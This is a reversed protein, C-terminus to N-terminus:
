DAPSTALNAEPTQWRNLRHELMYDAAQYYALTDQAVPSDSLQIDEIAEAATNSNDHEVLSPSTIRQIKKQPSFIVLQDDEYLALKQYNGILARPQFDASLINQGFFSGTYDMGLLALLTPGVDIQSAIKKISTPSIYKPAYILFPIHYRSLTLGTRGASNATHDAVMVFVTDDFWPKQKASKIFKRLAYDTYQVGGGRGVGSAVEVRGDPYTFPQHNSVTMVHFFFPTHDAHDSDAQEIVKNFLSEDNMGWANSFEIESSDFDTMDVTRYGNGSFFKNMNDFYGRGGYMYAVDYERDKFVKGLSFMRDNDPRKVVSRGPTPPISLTLAELGRVTRTGTAYLRDFVLSQDMWQDIFPTWPLEHGYRQLFAASLSEVSIFIVNLKKEVGDNDVTRRINYLDDSLYQSNPAALITRILKSYVKDEGTVYFRKYDLENNKFAAFFQYAGNSSIESLFNNKFGNKLSQNLVWSAAIAGVLWFMAQRTRTSKVRM